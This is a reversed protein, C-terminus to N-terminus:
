SKAAIVRALTTRVRAVELISVMSVRLSWMGMTVWVIVGNLSVIVVDGNCGISRHKCSLARWSRLRSVKSSKCEMCLYYNNIGNINVVHLVGFLHLSVIVAIFCYCPARANWRGQLCQWDIFAITINDALPDFLPSLNHAWDTKCQHGTIPLILRWSSHIHGLKEVQFTEYRVVVKGEFAFRGSGTDSIESISFVPISVKKLSLSSSFQHEVFNSSAAEAIHVVIPLLM